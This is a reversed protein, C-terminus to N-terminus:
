SETDHEASPLLYERIGFLTNNTRWISSIRQPVIMRTTQIIVITSGVGVPGSLRLRDGAARDGILHPLFHLSVRRRRLLQLAIEM